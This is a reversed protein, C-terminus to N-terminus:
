SLLRLLEAILAGAFVSYPGVLDGARDVRPTIYHLPAQTDLEGKAEYLLFDAHERYHYMGVLIGTLLVFSWAPLGFILIVAAPVLATVAGHGFWSYLQNNRVNFIFDGVADVTALFYATVKDM